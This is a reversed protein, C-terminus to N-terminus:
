FSCCMYQLTCYRRNVTTWAPLPVISKLSHVQTWAQRLTFHPLYLTLSLAIYVSIYLYLHILYNCLLLSRTVSHTCSHTLSLSPLSLFLCLSLSHSLVFFTFIVICVVFKSLNLVAEMLFFDIQLVKYVFSFNPQFLSMNNLTPIYILHQLL